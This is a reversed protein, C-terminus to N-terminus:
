GPEPGGSGLVGLREVARRAVTTGDRLMKAQEIARSVQTLGWGGEWGTWRGLTSMGDRHQVVGVVM